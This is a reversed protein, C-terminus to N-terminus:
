NPTRVWRSIRACVRRQRANTEPNYGYGTSWSGVLAGNAKRVGGPLLRLRCTAYADAFIEAGGYFYAGDEDYGWWGADPELEAVKPVVSNMFSAREADSMTQHDAAHGTEHARSFRTLYDVVYIVNFASDYCASAGWGCVTVDGASVTPVAPPLPPREPLRDRGSAFAAGAHALLLLALAAILSLGLAIPFTPRRM